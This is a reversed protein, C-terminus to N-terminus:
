FLGIPNPNFYNTSKGIIVLQLQQIVIGHQALGVPKVKNVSNVCGPVPLAIQLSAICHCQVKTACNM